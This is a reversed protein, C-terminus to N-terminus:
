FIHKVIIIYSKEKINELVIKTQALNKLKGCNKKVTM